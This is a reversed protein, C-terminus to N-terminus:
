LECLFGYFARMWINQYHKNSRSYDRRCRIHSCRKHLEQRMEATERVQV